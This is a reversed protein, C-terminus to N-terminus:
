GYVRVLLVGWENRIEGKKRAQKAAKKDIGDWRYSSERTVYFPKCNIKVVKKLDEDSVTLDLDGWWVQRLDYDFICANFFVENDPHKDCYTSKSPHIMRGTM